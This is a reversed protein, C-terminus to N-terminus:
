LSKKATSLAHGVTGSGVKNGPGVLEKEFDSFADPVSFSGQNKKATTLMASAQPM